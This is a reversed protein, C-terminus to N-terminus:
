SVGPRKPLKMKTRTIERRERRVDAQERLLKHLRLDSDESDVAFSFWIECGHRPAVRGSEDVHSETPPVFTPARARARVQRHM